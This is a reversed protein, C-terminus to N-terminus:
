LCSLFECFDCFYHIFKQNKKIIKKTGQITQLTFTHKTEDVVKGELGVLSQNTANVVCVRKGIFESRLVKEIEEKM